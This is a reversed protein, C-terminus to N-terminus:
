TVEYGGSIAVVVKTRDDWAEFIGGHCGAFKGLEAMYVKRETRM